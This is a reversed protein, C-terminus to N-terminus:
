AEESPPPPRKVMKKKLVAKKKPAAEGTAEEEAAPAQGGEHGSENVIISVSPVDSTTITVSPLTPPTPISGDISSGGFGFIGLMNPMVSSTQARMIEMGSALQPVQEMVVLVRALDARVDGIQGTISSVSAELTAIKAEASALVERTADLTSKLETTTQEIVEVSKCFKCGM